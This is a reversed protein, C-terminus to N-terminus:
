PRTSATRGPCSGWAAGWSWCAGGGAAGGPRQTLVCACDLGHRERLTRAMAMVRGTNDRKGAAPNIIFIHRM